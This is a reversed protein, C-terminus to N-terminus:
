RKHSLLYARTPSQPGTQYDWCVGTDDTDRHTEIVSTMEVSIVQSAFTPSVHNRQLSHTVSKSPIERSSYNVVANRLERRENLASLLSNSYLKALFTYIAMWIFNQPMKLFCVLVAVAAISTFLGSRITFAVLRDIVRSVRPNSMKTLADQRRYLLFYLMALAIAVDLAAGASLLLTILWTWNARFAEVSTNVAQTGLFASGICRFVSIVACTLGVYNFPQPFLRWLRLSFFCQVLTTIVGGVILASGLGPFTLVGGRPTSVTLQYLEYSIATTHALELFWM